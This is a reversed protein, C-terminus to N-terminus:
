CKLFGVRNLAKTEEIEFHLHYPIFLDSCHGAGYM